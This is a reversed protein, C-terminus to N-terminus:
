GIYRRIDTSDAVNRCFTKYKAGAGDGYKKFSDYVFTEGDNAVEKQCKGDETLPTFIKKIKTLIDNNYTKKSHKKFTKKSINKSHKKSHKKSINKSHKKSTKRSLKM